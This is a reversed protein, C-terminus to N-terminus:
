IARESQKQPRKLTTDLRKKMRSPSGIAISSGGQEGRSGLEPLAECVCVAEYLIACVSKLLSACSHIKLGELLSTKPGLHRKPDARHGTPAALLM